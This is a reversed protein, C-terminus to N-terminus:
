NRKTHESGHLLLTEEDDETVTLIQLSVRKEIQSLVQLLVAKGRCLLDYPYLSVHVSGKERKSWDVTPM